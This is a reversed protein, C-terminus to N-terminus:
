MRITTPARPITKVKAMLPRRSARSGRRSSAGGGGAYFPGLHPQAALASVKLSTLCHGTASGVSASWHGGGQKKNERVEADRGARDDAPGHHSQWSQETTQCTTERSLGSPSVSLVM